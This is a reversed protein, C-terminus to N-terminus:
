NGEMAKRELRELTKKIRAKKWLDINNSIWGMFPVLAVIVGQIIILLGFSWQGVNKTWEVWNDNKNIGFYQYGIFMIFFSTLVWLITFLRQFSRKVFNLIKKKMSSLYVSFCKFFYLCLFLGDLFVPKDHVLFM